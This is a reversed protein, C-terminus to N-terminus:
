AIAPVKIFGAATHADITRHPPKKETRRALSRGPRDSFSRRDEGLSGITFVTENAIARDLASHHFFLILAAIAYLFIQSVTM